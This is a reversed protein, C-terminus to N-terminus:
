IVFDQIQNNEFEIKGRVLDNWSTKGSSVKFWIAGEKEYALDKDILQQAYKQYEKLRESQRYPGFPGDVNPGEDYKLGLWKLADYIVKEAEPVHRKMDTDEIRLVFKGKNQRAFTFNFLAIYINGVHALGTPSPAIRVRIEKIM